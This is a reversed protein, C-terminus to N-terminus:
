DSGDLLRGPDERARRGDQALLLDACEVEDERVPVRCENM